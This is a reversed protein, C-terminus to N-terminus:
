RRSLLGPPVLWRLSGIAGGLEAVDVRALAGKKMAVSAGSLESVLWSLDPDHGVLMPRLPDGAEALIREVIALDLQGGLRADIAVGVGLASGVADATQRARLKPSSILADPRFGAASLLAGLRAAQRRGKASLPRDADDGPWTLPDGADAHRVLLLEIM